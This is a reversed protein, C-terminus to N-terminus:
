ISLILKKKVLKSIIINDVNVDWTEIPKKAAYFKGKALNIEGFRLMIISHYFM